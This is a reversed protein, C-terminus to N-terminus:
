LERGKRSDYNTYFIFGREDVGKLLVTRSSPKGNKDATALIMANIDLPSHGLIAQWLKFLAISIKRWRSNHNQSAANAFWDQFQKLPDADLDQRKLAGASYDRRLDAPNM